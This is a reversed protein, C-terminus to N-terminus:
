RLPAGRRLSLIDVPPRDGGRVRSAVFGPVRLWQWAQRLRSISIPAKLDSSLVMEGCRGRAPLFGKPWDIEIVWVKTPLKLEELAALVAPGQAAAWPRMEDKWAEAARLSTRLELERRTAFRCFEDFGLHTGRRGIAHVPAGDKVFSALARQIAPVLDRAACDAVLLPAIVIPHPAGRLLSGVALTNYPGMEDDHVVFQEGWRRLSVLRRDSRRCHQWPAVARPVWSDPDFVLGVVVIPHISYRVTSFGILVPIGSKVYRYVIEELRAHTPPRKNRGCYCLPPYLGNSTLCRKIEESDVGLGPSIRCPQPSQWGITTFEPSDVYALHGAVSALASLPNPAAIRDHQVYPFTTVRLVRPGFKVEFDRHCNSCVCGNRSPTFTKSDLLARRIMGCRSSRLDCYGLYRPDRDRIASVSRVRGRFFHLRVPGRADPEAPARASQLECEPGLATEPSGAAAEEVVTRCGAAEFM